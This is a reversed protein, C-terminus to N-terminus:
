RKIDSLEDILTLVRSIQRRRNQEVRKKELKRGKKSNKSPPNYGPDKPKPPPNMVKDRYDDHQVIYELQKMIDPTHCKQRHYQAIEDHEEHPKPYINRHYLVPTGTYEDVIIRWFDHESFIHLSDDHFSDQLHHKLCFDHIQEKLPQYWPRMSCCCNCLRNGENRAERISPYEKLDDAATRSIRACGKYHVIKSRSKLSLYVPQVRNVNQVDELYADMEAKCCSHPRLKDKVCGKM